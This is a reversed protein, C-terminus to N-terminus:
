RPMRRPPSRRALASGAAADAPGRGPRAPTTPAISARVGRRRLGGGRLRPGEDFPDPAITTIRVNHLGDRPGSSRRGATTRSTSATAKSASSSAARASRTSSSRLQDGPRRGLGRVLEQRQRRLSLARGRLRRLGHERRVSRDRRRPHPPQQLRRPLADLQRRREGLQLGLRVDGGLRQGAQKPDITISFMDTDLVMGDAIQKWSKGGDDTRWGQRWTGVFIRDHSRPDIALSEVNIQDSIKEWTAGRTSAAIARRDPRRRRRLERRASRHRHRPRFLGGAGRRAAGLDARRRGFRRHRRRGVAGLLGGLSQGRPRPGPQRRHLRSVPRRLASEDLEERRRALRVGRRREHRSLAHRSRGSRRDARARGRRVSWGPAM